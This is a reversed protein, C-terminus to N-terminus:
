KCSIGPTCCGDNVSDTGGDVGINLTDFMNDVQGLDDVRLTSDPDFTDNLLVVDEREVDRFGFETEVALPSIGELSIVDKSRAMENDEDLFLISIDSEPSIFRSAETPSSTDLEVVLVIEDETKGVMLPSNEVEDEEVRGAGTSFPDRFRIPSNSRNVQRPAM